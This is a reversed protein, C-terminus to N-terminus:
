GAATLLVAAAPIPKGVHGGAMPDKLEKPMYTADHKAMM